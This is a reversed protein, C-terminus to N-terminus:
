KEGFRGFPLGLVLVRTIWFSQISMNKEFLDTKKDHSPFIKYGEFLNKWCHTAHGL